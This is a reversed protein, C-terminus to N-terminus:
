SSSSLGLVARAHLAIPGRVDNAFTELTKRALREHDGCRFLCRALELPLHGCVGTFSRLKLRAEDLTLEAKQAGGVKKLEAALALAAKPDGLAELALAICYLHSPRGEPLTSLLNLKDLIPKLARPDRTRGLALIYSDLWTMRPYYHGIDETGFEHRAEIEEVLVEVGAADGMMGLVHACRLKGAADPTAKLATKLLPLSRDPDSMSVKVRSYDTEVLVRIAEQIATLPLPFSDPQGARDAPLCGNQVLRAQLKPFDISRPSQHNQVAMAAAMGVAYGQNQMDPQMRVAPTVDADASLAIGIVLIGDLGKPLLCRYPVCTIGGPYNNIQFYPHVPESHKDLTGSKGVNITDPFIRENVMDMPTLTYDGVIRRRERTDLLQALDYANGNLRRAVVTVTWRDVMDLDNAYTWDSNLYSAGLERRPLGAQQVGFHKASEFECPAGAAAAIDANGSADIVVKALVIGRGQPTAVVIGKVKGNEVLAGVGQGEFWIDGGAKRIEQRWWEMKGVVYSPTGLAKIGAETEATFGIILGYCYLGIQGMTAVGGLGHLYEIVLTKAGERAAGIGACAGSTGGGVVVVDYEGVIPIARAPVAVMKGEVNWPRVGSLLEYTDLQFPKPEAPGGGGSPSRLSSPKARGQSIEQRETPRPTGASGDQRSTERGKAASAAAGGLRGGLALSQLPRLLEAAAERSIDACAGLVFLHRVSEPQFVELDIKKADPWCGSLSKKGVIPDPPIQFLREAADMQSPHFTLDRAAQEAAAFSAFSADPMPLKLTYEILSEYTLGVPSNRDGWGGMSPLGGLPFRLPIRRVEVGAEKRAEGAVVVRSFTQLRAPYPLAKAGAMRAVWARDTADIVVKAQVAQRGARNVIEVGSVEGAADKLIAVAGSEYLFPIRAELLADELVRKIQMPTVNVVASDPSKKTKPALLQIQGILIRKAGPAARVELRVHRALKGVKGCLVLADEIYDRKGLEQNRLTGAPQWVSKDDSVALEVQDVGFDGAAQYLMVRAEGIQQPDALSLTLTVPGDFQVSHGFAHGWQGDKLSVPMFDDKHIGKAPLNSEYTYDLGRRELQPAFLKKALESDPEEGHELWLRGTACLDEGLYPRPAMLFVTAGQERAALAAAVAATTGGVVVVDVEHVLPIERKSEIIEM